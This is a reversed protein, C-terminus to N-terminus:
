LGMKETDGIELTEDLKGEQPKAIVSEIIQLSAKVNESCKPTTQVSCLASFNHRTEALSCANQLRAFTFIVFDRLGQDDTQKSIAQRVAKLIHASCM